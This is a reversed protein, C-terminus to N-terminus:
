STVTINEYLRTARKACLGPFIDMHLSIKLPLYFKRRRHKICYMYAIHCSIYLMRGHYYVYGSEKCYRLSWLVSLVAHMVIFHHFCIDSYLPLSIRCRMHTPLDSALGFVQTYISIGWWKSSVINTPSSRSLHVDLLVQCYEHIVAFIVQALYFPFTM